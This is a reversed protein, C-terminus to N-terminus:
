PAHEVDGSDAIIQRLRDCASVRRYVPDIPGTPEATAVDGPARETLRHFRRAGTGHLRMLSGWASNMPTLGTSSRCRRSSALSAAQSPSFTSPKAPGSVM